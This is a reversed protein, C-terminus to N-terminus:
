LIYLIITAVIFFTFGCLVIVLGAKEEFTLIGKRYSDMASYSELLNLFEKQKEFERKRKNKYYDQMYFDKCVFYRNLNKM